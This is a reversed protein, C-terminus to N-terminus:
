RRLFWPSALLVFVLGKIRTELQGSEMEADPDADQAVLTLAAQELETPLATFLLNAIANSVAQRPTRAQAVGSAVSGGQQLMAVPDVLLRGFSFTEALRVAFKQQHLLSNTNSWYAETDPFGNPPVWGFPQQGAAALSQFIVGGGLLAVGFIDANVAYDYTNIGCARAAGIMAPLPRKLKAGASAAFEPSGLLTGLMARIDGGTATFTEAVRATLEAPPPDAVFRACLKRAIFRATGPHELILELARDIEEAGGGARFYEGLFTKENTDHLEAVFHASGYDLGTSLAAFPDPAYTLGTLIRALAKMDAETYGGDKGLTHLELLERAYNENIADRTSIWNDLYHLMEPHHVAARLLTKFNGLANPRIVDRDFCLKLPIPNKRVYTNLHDNWFDTMVEHLQAKSFIARHIMASQLHAIHLDIYFGAGSDAYIAAANAVIHPYLAAATLDSPDDVLALQEDIYAARGIERVRALEQAVPGFSIRRLLHLDPNEGAIQAPSLAAASKALDAALGGYLAGYGALQLFTRRKMATM